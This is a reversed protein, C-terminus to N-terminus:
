AAKPLLPAAANGALVAFHAATDANGDKIANLMGVVMSKLVRAAIGDAKGPLAIWSMRAM